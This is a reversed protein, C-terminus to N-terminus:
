DAGIFKRGFSIGLKKMRKRLTSPNIELLKAVGKDGEVRGHCLALARRIHEAMAQDLPLLAPSPDPANEMEPERGLTRIEGFSLLEGQELILAREVANELERVNGPWPYASLRHLAQATPGPILSRKMEIAKKRIFHRVLDPIDERRERLPPIAIPFVRLRFFLDPRFRKEEMMKELNRHTAAIVRIKM